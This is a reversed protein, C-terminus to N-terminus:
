EEETSLLLKIENVMLQEAEAFNAAAITAGAALDHGGGGFKRALPGVPYRSDKSRLSIKFGDKEQRVFMAIVVPELERLLDILGEDELPNFNGSRCLEPTLSAYALRNSCDFKLATQMLLNEFKMQELSKSFYVMNIIEELRAGAEILKAGCRFADGDANSFRFSGTDTILGTMLATACDPLIALGSAELVSTVLECTSSAGTDVLGTGGSIWSGHKHHDLHLITRNELHSLELKEPLALRQPNASDLTIILDFDALAEPALELLYDRCLKRYKGPVETGLATEAAKGADRLAQRMGFASGLADGDPRIHTLILAKRCGTLLRIIEPPINSM